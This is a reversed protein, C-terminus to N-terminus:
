SHHAARMLVAQRRLDIGAERHELVREVVYDAQAQEDRPTVLLPRQESQRTSFLHKAFGEPALAIVANAADLIPQTSRYNQSSTGQPSLSARFTSSIASRRQASRTSRSRM